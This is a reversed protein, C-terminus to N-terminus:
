NLNTKVTECDNKRIDHQSSRDSVDWAIRQPDSLTGQANLVSVFTAEETGSATDTVLLRLVTCASM